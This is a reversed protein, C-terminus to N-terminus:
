AQYLFQQIWICVFDSVIQRISRLVAVFRKIDNQSNLAGNMVSHYLLPSSVNRGPGCLNSENKITSGVQNVFEMILNPDLLEMMRVLDEASHNSNM